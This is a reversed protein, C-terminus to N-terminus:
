VEQNIKDELEELTLGSEPNELAEKALNILREHEREEVIQSIKQYEEYPVIAAAVKGNKTLYSVEGTAVIGSLHTKAESISNVRM